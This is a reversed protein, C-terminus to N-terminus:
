SSRIYASMIFCKSLTRYNRPLTVFKVNPVRQFEINRGILLSLVTSEQKQNTSFDSHKDLKELSVRNYRGSNTYTKARTVNGHEQMAPMGNTNWTTNMIEQLERAYDPRSPPLNKVSSPGPNDRKKRLAQLFTIM